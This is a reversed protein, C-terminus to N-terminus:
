RSMPLTMEHKYIYIEVNATVSVPLVRILVTWCQSAEVFNEPALFEGNTLSEFEEVIMRAGVKVGLHL